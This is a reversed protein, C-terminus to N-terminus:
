ANGSKIAELLVYHIFAYQEQVYVMANRDRRLSMVYGFVDVSKEAALRQLMAHIAIFTGTRGVGASCHVVIPGADPPNAESAKRVFKLLSSRSTPVGHDPWITYHYQNVTREDTGHAKKLNLTRITFDSLKVAQKLTVQIDGYVRAGEPPWYQHCKIRGREELNTVMVITRSDQEWIMRWFDSETEPLPGQTAIYVKKKQYGDLFNANIYDSGPVGQIPSLKVRSHDYAVISIYRNKRMNERALSAKWTFDAQPSLANYEHSFLLGDNAHLRRIHEEFEEVPVSTGSERPKHNPKGRARQGREHLKDTLTRTRASEEHSINATSELQGYFLIGAGFVTVVLLLIVILVMSTTMRDKQTSFEMAGECEYVGDNDFPRKAEVEPKGIFDEDTRRRRADADRSFYKGDRVPNTTKQEKQNGFKVEEM